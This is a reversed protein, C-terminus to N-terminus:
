LKFSCPLRNDWKTQATLPPPNIAPWASAMASPKGIGFDDTYFGVLGVIKPLRADLL